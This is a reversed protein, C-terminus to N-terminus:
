MEVYTCNKNKSDVYVIILCNLISFATSIIFIIEVIINIEKKFLICFFMYIISLIYILIPLCLFLWRNKTKELFKKMAKM